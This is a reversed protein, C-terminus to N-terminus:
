NFINWKLNQVGLFQGVIKNLNDICKKYEIEDLEIGYIHKELGAIIKENTLNNSKGEKIYRKVIEKLFAGDGCAPELIYRTLIQADYYNSLDLIENVVWEPTYVQGLTKHKTM